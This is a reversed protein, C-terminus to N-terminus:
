EFIVIFNIYVRIVELFNFYLDIWVYFIGGGGIKKKFDEIDVNYYKIM